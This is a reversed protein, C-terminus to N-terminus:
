CPENLLVPFCPKFDRLLFLYSDGKQRGSLFSDENEERLYSKGLGRMGVRNGTAWRDRQGKGKSITNELGLACWKPFCAPLCSPSLSTLNHSSIGIETKPLRATPLLNILLRSSSHLQIQTLFAEPLAREWLPTTKVSLNCCM